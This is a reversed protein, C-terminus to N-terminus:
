LRGKVMHIVKEETIESISMCHTLAMAVKLEENILEMLEKVGTYGGQALGWLIPTELFVATAGYALAKMVDTGRRIGGDLYVEVKPSEKKVARSISRLVSITSPVTDLVKGSGNSIWIADAGNKIALLADEKCM